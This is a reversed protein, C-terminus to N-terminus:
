FTWTIGLSPVIGPWSEVHRQVEGTDEDFQVDLGSGNKRDYVNQVDAYLVLEGRRVPWRRSVRMDLRHYLSLRESRLPGFALALESGRGAGAAGRAASEDEPEDEPEDPDEPTEIEVLVVPTTPWGTHYRWALNVTWRPDIQYALDATVTNTQDFARPIWRGAIRDETSAIAYTLWWGVRPGVRGRVFLEVGEARSTEPDIRVRDPEIEPFFNLPEVLNEYRTRPEDVDHRYLELRVAELGWRNTRPLSELGLVWHDAEEPPGLSVDGDAVLVEYPRQSQAFRGWAARAVNREGLRWALNVRPSVVEDDTWDHHDWRAGLEVTLRPLPSFRDSAWVAVHDGDVTGRFDHVIQRPPAFPALIVLEPELRKDYDLFVEYRRLEGGWRVLHRPAVQLDWSQTLASVRLERRDHLQYGGDEELGESARDREIEARSVLTEVLLRSGPAARHTVWGYTSRYDNALKEIDTAIVSFALEDAAHLLHGSWTGLSTDLEVKGLADWFQPDEKGIARSALDISGRRGTALWSGRDDGLLGMGSATLALVSAGLSYRREAPDVTRLDLVGGMRDGQSVAFGGTALNAGALSSAPVVSLANDFDPLHYADYLEQGDLLIQLEDRRGGRVHFQASVDNGTIGPLLTAARFLDDGLHPLGEIEAESLSFSSGPDERLLALRSPRVVIEDEVFPLPQLTFVIERDAGAALRVDAARAELHGPALADLTYEGPELAPTSFSGDAAARIELGVPAVRVTAGALARGEPGLIRGAIRAELAAPDAVVVLVGGPGERVTLGHPALLVRLVDDPEGGPPEDAVVMDARVLESTFVVPVGGSEFALLVEALPRGAWPGQPPAATAALTGLAAM